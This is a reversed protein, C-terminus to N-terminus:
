FAIGLSSTEFFTTGESSPFYVEKREKREKV